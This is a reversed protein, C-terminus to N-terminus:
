KFYVINNREPMGSPMYCQPKGVKAPIVTSQSDLFSNVCYLDGNICDVDQRCEMRINGCEGM